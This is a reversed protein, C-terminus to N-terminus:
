CKPCRVFPPFTIDKKIGAEHLLDEAFIELGDDQNHSVYVTDVLMNLDVHLGIGIRPEDVTPMSSIVARIEREYSYANQKHIFRDFTAATAEHSVFDIYRVKEIRVGYNDFLDHPKSCFCKALRDVTTKIAFGKGNPTYIKWMSLVEPAQMSWCSVFAQKLVAKSGREIIQRVRNDKVRQQRENIVSDPLSGEHEDGLLDSRTFWLEKRSVLLAFKEVSMYRWIEISVDLDHDICYHRM